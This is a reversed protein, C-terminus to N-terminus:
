QFVLHAHELLIEFITHTHATNSKNCIIEISGSVTSLYVVNRCADTCLIHLFIHLINYLQRLWTQQKFYEVAPEEISSERWGHFYLLENQSFLFNCIIIIRAFLRYTDALWPWQIVKVNGRFIRFHWATKALNECCSGRLRFGGLM